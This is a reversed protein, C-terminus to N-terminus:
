HVQLDRLPCTLNRGAWNEKNHGGCHAKAAFIIAQVKAHLCPSPCSPSFLWRDVRAFAFDRIIHQVESHKLFMNISFSFYSPFIHLLDNDIGATRFKILKVKIQQFWPANIVRPAKRWREEARNRTPVKLKSRHNSSRAKGEKWGETIQWVNVKAAAQWLVESWRRM